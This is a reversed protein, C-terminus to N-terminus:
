LLDKHCNQVNQRDRLRQVLKESLTELTTAIRKQCILNERLLKLKETRYKKCMNFKKELFLIKIKYKQINDKLRKNGQRTRSIASSNKRHIM